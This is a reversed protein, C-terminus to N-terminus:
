QEPAIDDLRTCLSRYAGPLSGLKLTAMREGRLLAANSRAKFAQYKRLVQAFEFPYLTGGSVKALLPNGGFKRM